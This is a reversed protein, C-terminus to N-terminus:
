SKSRELMLYGSSWGVVRWGFKAMFNAAKAMNKVHSFMGHLIVYRSALQEVDIRGNLVDKVKFFVDDSMGFAWRVM